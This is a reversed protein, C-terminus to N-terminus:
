KGGFDKLVVALPEPPVKAAGAFPHDIAVITTIGSFIVVALIGTMVVQAGVSKAGFFFTFGITLAAGAFLVIWVVRPVSGAAMVLRTRRAQTMLDLQRLIETLIATDRADSPRYKLVAAYAHDLARTTEPSARRQEMAPWDKDIATALYAHMADRLAAASEMEIGNALRYVTTAASAERAVASEADGFKEWVVVVAFGLLVAYFMSVTAFKAGGVENNARLQEFSFFRRVILPGAMAVLTAPVILLFATQWLSSQTTLFHM